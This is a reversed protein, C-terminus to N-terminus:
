KNEVIAIIEKVSKIKEIEDKTFSIGMRDELEVILNLHTLSDWEGVDRKKTEASIEIQKNFVSCFIEQLNEIPLKM